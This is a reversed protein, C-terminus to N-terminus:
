SRRFLRNGLRKRAAMRLNIVQQRTCGLRSAIENDPLPLDNWVEGFAAASMEVADAIARISAIGTAVLVSMADYRLNLLLAQRQRGPLERIHLWLREAERRQDLATDVAPRPDAVREAESIPELPLLPVGWV